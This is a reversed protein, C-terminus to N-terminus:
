CAEKIKKKRDIGSRWVLRSMDISDDEVLIDQM